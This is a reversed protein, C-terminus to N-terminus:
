RIAQEPRISAPLATIGTGHLYLEGNIPGDVEIMSIIRYGMRNETEASKGGM